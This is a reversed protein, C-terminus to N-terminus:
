KWVRRAHQAIGEETPEWVVGLLFAIARVFPRM